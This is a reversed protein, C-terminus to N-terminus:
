RIWVRRRSRRLDAGGGLVVMRYADGRSQGRPRTVGGAGGKVTATFTAGMTLAASPTLRATRSPQDYTVTAAVLAGAANRLEFTSSSMSAPAMPESFTATVFTGAAVGAAGNAPSASTM